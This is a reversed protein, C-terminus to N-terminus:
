QAGGVLAARMQEVILAPLVNTPLATIIKRSHSTRRPRHSNRTVPTITAFLRIGQTLNQTGVTATTRRSLERQLQPAAQQLLAAAEPRNRLTRTLDASIQIAFAM